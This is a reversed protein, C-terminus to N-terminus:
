KHIFIYMCGIGFKRQIIYSLPKIHVILEKQSLRCIISHLFNIHQYFVCM